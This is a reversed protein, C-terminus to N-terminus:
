YLNLDNNKKWIYCELGAQNSAVIIGNQGKNLKIKALQRVDKDARFGTQYSSKVKFYGKGNGLLLIGKGADYRGTSVETTYDNGAMLIDLNGDHNYDDVLISKIPSFQTEVPLQKQKFQGNGLNEFYSSELCEAKAVFADKLEESLFSDEFTNEALKKYTDFRAKMPPIQTSLEDRTHAIYNKGQVYYSMIPDIRSNKDFDKAHIRLPENPSVKYRTNTGLNGAIIDMDGDKDFDAIELSNWWGSSHTISHNSSHTFTKGSINKFISIPMFEGATVLDEWGDKDMDAWIATTVMGMNKLEDPTVDTFKNNLDNRLLYSRPPKPYNELSIRGGVFLDLDGDHDYDCSTVCSGAARTDPLANLLHKFNGKGDNQYLRNQQYEPSETNDSGGSVVYLDLDKDNDFDFLLAGTDESELHQNLLKKEFKGNYKQIFFQGSFGKAGGVYFDELKDGNIDGVTICPGSKSFEHPLLVQSKFDVFQNEQHTFNLNLLQTIDQFDYDSCPLRGEFPRSGQGNGFQIELIQNAKVNRLVQRNGNIWVVVVSDIKTSNGLGFHLKTEVTSEYGRYPNLEQFQTKGNTYVWIKSGIGQLNPSKGRLKISLYNNKFLETSNNKYVLAKDNLRNIILELDGDNDLDTYCAGNSFGKEDIGWEDSQKAFTLDGKNQFIYNQLPVQDLEKIEKLKKQRKANENGLNSNQSFQYNIYDLNGLDRYFGNTVFLDKQGDNDYDAFLASWSWDTNSVGSLFAIESFHLGDDRKSLNSQNLQLTNRTYQPVYGNQVMLEFKDYSASPILMKKRYNDEPLMDLVFIDTMGDNNFDAVDNGMSAFSTHKLYTLIKNSFTGDQNNIYLIDNTLFDNSVYIDPFGDQNFDSIGAGLSYGGITIGSERSVDTFRHTSGNKSGENRYLIDAGVEANGKQAQASVNNVGTIMADAPNTILFLDLDGDLDYDLFSANMTLRKEAIGYREAEETFTINKGNTKGGQNIFLLNRTDGLKATGSVNIYIDIWGDQNIDVMSVGTCWRNTAIKAEKTIDIFQLNGKNLYLKCSVNNGSFFLDTLGDNNLDGAAVGAGTYINMYELVNISENEIVKNNFDIGTETSSLAEFRKTKCSSTCLFIIFLLIYLIRGEFPLIRHKLTFISQFHIVPSVCGSQIGHILTWHVRLGVRSAIGHYKLSVFKDRNFYLKTQIM